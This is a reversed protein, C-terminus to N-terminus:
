ITEDAVKVVVGTGADVEIAIFEGGAGGYIFRALWKGDPGRLYECDKRGLLEYVRDVSDGKRILWLNRNYAGDVMPRVSRGDSKLVDIANTKNSDSFVVFLVDPCRGWRIKVEWESVAASNTYPILGKFPYQGLWANTSPVRAWPPEVKRAVQPESDGLRIRDVALLFRYEEDSQKNEAGLWVGGTGILFLCVLVGRWAHSCRYSQICM